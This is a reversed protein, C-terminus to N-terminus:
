QMCIASVHKNACKIVIDNFKRITFILANKTRIFLNNNHSFLHGCYITLYPTIEPQMNCRADTNITDKLWSTGEQFTAKLYKQM